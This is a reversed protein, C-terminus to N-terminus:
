GQSGSVARVQEEILRIQKRRNGWSLFPVYISGAYPVLCRSLNYRHLELLYELAIQAPLRERHERQEAHLLFGWYTHFVLSVTPGLPGRAAARAASKKLLQYWLEPRQHRKKLRAGLVFLGAFLVLMGVIFATVILEDQRATTALITRLERPM